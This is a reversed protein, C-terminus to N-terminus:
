TDARKLMEKMYTPRKVSSVRLIYLSTTHLQYM